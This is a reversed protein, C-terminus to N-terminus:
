REWGPLVKGVRHRPSPRSRPPPDSSVSAELPDPCQGCRCSRTGPSPLGPRGASRFGVGFSVDMFDNARAEFDRITDSSIAALRTADLAWAASLTLMLVASAAVMSRTRSLIPADLASAM